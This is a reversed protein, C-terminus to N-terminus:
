GCGSGRWHGIGGSAVALFAVTDQVHPPATIARPYTATDVLARRAYHRWTSDIFQYAGSASSTPNQAGYGGSTDSEHARICVLTPHHHIDHRIQDVQCATLVLVAAVALLARRAARGM